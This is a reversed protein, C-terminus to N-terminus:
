SDRFRFILYFRCYLAQKRKVLEKSILYNLIYHNTFKLWFSPLCIFKALMALPLLPLQIYTPLSFDWKRISESPVQYCSPSNQNSVGQSAIHLSISSKFQKVLSINPSVSFLSTTSAAKLKRESIYHTQQITALIFQAIRNFLMYVPM